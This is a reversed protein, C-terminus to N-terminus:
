EGGVMVVLQGNKAGIDGGSVPADVSFVDRKIAHNYIEDALGPKSTTHDILYSGPKMHKLIGDNPDLVMKEVDKPYGLMLFLYDSQKAVEEPSMFTAGSKVLDDAKSATRNFVAMPNGHKMLHAAM